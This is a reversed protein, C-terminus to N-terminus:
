DNRWDSKEPPPRRKPRRQGEEPEQMDEPEMLRAGQRRAFRLRDELPESRNPDYLARRTNGVFWVVAFPVLVAASIPVLPGIPWETGGRPNPSVVIFYYLTAILGVVTPGGLLLWLRVWAYNDRRLLEVMATQYHGCGPCPVPDIDERLRRRLNDRADEWLEESAEEGGIGFPRHSTAHETRDMMYEYQAGCYECRQRKRVRRMVSATVRTWWYLM